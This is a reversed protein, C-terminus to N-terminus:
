KKDLDNLKIYSLIATDTKIKGLEDKRVILDISFVHLTHPKISKLDKYPNLFKVKVFPSEEKSIIKAIQSIYVKGNPINLDKRKNDIQVIDGIKFMNWIKKESTSTYTPDYGGTFDLGGTGTGTTTTSNPNMTNIM